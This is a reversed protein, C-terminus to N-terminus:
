ETGFGAVQLRAVVALRLNEPMPEQSRLSRVAELFTREFEAHPHCHRCVALHERIADMRPPTLEGDLFDFLQRMADHCDLMPM